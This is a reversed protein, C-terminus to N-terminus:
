PIGGGLLPGLSSCVIWLHSGLGLSGTRLSQGSIQEYIRRFDEAAGAGMLVTLDARCYAVEHTRPGIGAASWDVVGTLKERSWLLNGPHFDGHGIAREAKLAEPLNRRVANVARKILDTQRLGQPPEWDEVRHVKRLSATAKRLPVNQITVLASAIERLWTDLNRPRINPRGPLRTMVLAPTGFWSGKLDRALPEPTSLEL